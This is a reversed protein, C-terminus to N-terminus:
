FFLAIPPRMRGKPITNDAERRHRRLEEPPKPLPFYIFEGVIFVVAILLPILWRLLKRELIVVDGVGTEEAQGSVVKRSSSEARERKKLEGEPRHSTKLNKPRSLFLIEKVPPTQVKDKAQTLKARCEPCDACHEELLASEALTCQGEIYRPILTNVLQCYENNGM